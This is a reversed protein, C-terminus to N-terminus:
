ISLAAEFIICMYVYINEYVYAYWIWVDHKDTLGTPCQRKAVTTPTTRTARTTTTTTTTTITVTVHWLINLNKSVVHVHNQQGKSDGPCPRGLLCPYSRPDCWCDWRLRTCPSFFQDHHSQPTLLLIFFSSDKCIGHGQLEPITSWRVTLRNQNFLDFLALRCVEPFNWRGQTQNEKLLAKKWFLNALNNSAFVCHFLLNRNIEWSHENNCDRSTPLHRLFEQLNHGLLM